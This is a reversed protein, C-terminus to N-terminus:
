SVKENWVTLPDSPVESNHPGGLQWSLESNLLRTIPMIKYHFIKVKLKTTQILVSPKMWWLSSSCPFCMTNLLSPERNPHHLPVCYTHHTCQTSRQTWFPGQLLYMNVTNIQCPWLPWLETQHIPSTKRDGWLLRAAIRVESYCKPWRAAIYWYSRLILLFRNYKFWQM